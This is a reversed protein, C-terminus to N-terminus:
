KFARNLACFMAKISATAIDNNVDAIKYVGHAVKFDSSNVRKNTKIHETIQYVEVENLLTKVRAQIKNPALEKIARRVTIENVDLADAVEKITMNKNVETLQETTTTM